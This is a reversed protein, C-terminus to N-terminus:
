QSEPECVRLGDTLSKLRNLEYMIEEQTKQLELIREKLCQKTIEDSTIITRYQRQDKMEIWKDLGRPKM